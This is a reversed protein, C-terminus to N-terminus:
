NVASRVMFGTREVQSKSQENFRINHNGTIYSLVEHKALHIVTNVDELLGENRQHNELSCRLHAVVMTDDRQIPFRISILMGNAM